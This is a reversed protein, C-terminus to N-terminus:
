GKKELGTAVAALLDALTRCQAANLIVRLESGRVAWPLVIIATNGRPGAALEIPKSWGDFVHTATSM